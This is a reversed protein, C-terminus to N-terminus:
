RPNVGVGGYLALMEAMKVLSILPNIVTVGLIEKLELDIRQFAMSMCGLIVAQAGDREVCEGAVETAIRVALERDHRITLVPINLPRVSALKKSFGYREAQSLTSPVSTEVPALISFRDVMLGAAHIASIGPGLVPVSAIQRLEFLGPDGFCGLTVANYGVAHRLSKLLGPVADKEDEESEISLPGESNPYYDITTGDSALGRMLNVRREMEVEGNKTALINTASLHLIRV